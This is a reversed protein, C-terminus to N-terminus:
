EGNLKSKFAHVVHDDTKVECKGQPHFLLQLLFYLTRHSVLFLRLVM